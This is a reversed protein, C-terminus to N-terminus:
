PRMLIRGTVTITEGDYNEPVTKLESISPKPYYNSMSLLALIAFTIM